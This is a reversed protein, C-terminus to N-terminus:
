RGGRVGAPGSPSSMTTSPSRSEEMSIYEMAWTVKCIEKYLLWGAGHRRTKCVAECGGGGVVGGGAGGWRLRFWQPARHV